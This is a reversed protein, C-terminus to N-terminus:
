VGVPRLNVSWLSGQLTRKAIFHKPAFFKQVCMDLSVVLRCDRTQLTSGLDLLTGHVLVQQVLVFLHSIDLASECMTVFKELLWLSKFVVNLPHMFLLPDETDVTPSRNGVNKKVPCSTKRIAFRGFLNSADLTLFSKAGFLDELIVLSSDVNTDSGAIQTTLLNFVQLPM